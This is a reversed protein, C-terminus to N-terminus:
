LKELYDVIKRFDDLTGDNKIRNARWSIIQVNGPIYGKSSDIRDFSVSNEARVEAFYDLEIGLIPCVKNWVVDDFTITFEHRTRSANEKKRSFRLGAQTLQDRSLGTSLLRQETKTLPQRQYKYERRIGSKKRYYSVVQSSIGLISSIQKNSKKDRLLSLIEAEKQKNSM